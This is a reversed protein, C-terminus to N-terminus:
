EVDARAALALLTAAFQRAESPTLLAFARGEGRYMRVVPDPRDRTGVGVLEAAIAADGGAWCVNVTEPRSMHSDYRDHLQSCWEPHRTRTLHMQAAKAAM